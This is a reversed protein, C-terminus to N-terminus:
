HGCFDSPAVAYSLSRFNLLLVHRHLQEVYPKRHCRMSFICSVSIITQAIRYPAFACVFCVWGDWNISETSKSNDNFHGFLVRCTAPSQQGVQSAWICPLSSSLLTSHYKRQQRQRRRRWRWRKPRGVVVFAWDIWCLNHACWIMMLRAAFLFYLAYRVGADCVCDTVFLSVLRTMPRLCYVLIIIIIFKKPPQPTNWQFYIITTM